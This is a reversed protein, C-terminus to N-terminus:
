RYHVTGDLAKIRADKWNIVTDQRELYMTLQESPQQLGKLRRAEIQM